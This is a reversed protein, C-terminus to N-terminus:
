VSFIKKLNLINNKDDLYQDVMDSMFKLYSGNHNIGIEAILKAMNTKM